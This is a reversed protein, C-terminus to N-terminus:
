ILFYQIKVPFVVCKVNKTTKYIDKIINPKINYKCQCCQCYKEDPEITEMSVPCNTNWDTETIQRCKFSWNNSNM